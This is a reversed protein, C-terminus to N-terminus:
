SRVKHFLARTAFSCGCTVRRRSPLMCVYLCQPHSDLPSLLMEYCQAPLDLEERLLLLLWLRHRMLSVQVMIKRWQRCRIQAATLDTVTTPETEPPAGMALSHKMERHSKASSGTNSSGSAISSSNSNRSTSSGVSNTSCKSISPHM